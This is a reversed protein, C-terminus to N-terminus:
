SAAAIRMGVASARRWAMAELWWQNRAFHAEARAYEAIIEHNDFSRDGQSSPM